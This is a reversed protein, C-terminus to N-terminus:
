TQENTRYEGGTIRGHCSDMNGHLCPLREFIIIELIDLQNDSGDMIQSAMENM